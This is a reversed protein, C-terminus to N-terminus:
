DVRKEGGGPGGVVWRLNSKPSLPDGNDHSYSTNRHVVHTERETERENSSSSFSVKEGVRRKLSPELSFSDKEKKSLTRRLKEERENPCLSLEREKM